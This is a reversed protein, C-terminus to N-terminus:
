FPIAILVMGVLLCVLGAIKCGLLITDNGSVEKTKRVVQAINTALMWCAMGIIALIIGIIVNGQQIFNKFTVGLIFM